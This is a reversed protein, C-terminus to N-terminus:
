TRLPESMELSSPGSATSPITPEVLVAPPAPMLMAPRKPIAAVAIALMTMALTWAIWAGIGLRVYNWLTGSYSSPAPGLDYGNGATLNNAQAVAVSIVEVCHNTPIGSWYSGGSSTSPNIQVSDGSYHQTSVAACSRSPLTHALTVAGAGVFLAFLIAAFIGFVRHTM